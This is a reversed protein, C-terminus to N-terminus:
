PNSNKAPALFPVTSRVTRSASPDVTVCGISPDHQSVVTRTSDSSGIRPNVTGASQSRQNSSERDQHPSVAGAVVVVVSGDNGSGDVVTSGVVVV